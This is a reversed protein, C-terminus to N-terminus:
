STLSRVGLPIGNSCVCPLAKLPAFAHIEIAGRLTFEHVFLSRQVSFSGTLTFVQGDTVIAAFGDGASTSIKVPSPFSGTVEGYVKSGQGNINAGQRAYQITLMTPRVKNSSSCIMCAGSPSTDSSNPNTGTDTDVTSKSGKGKPSKPSKISKHELKASKVSSIHTDTNTTGKVSKTSGKVSSPPDIITLTAMGLGGM